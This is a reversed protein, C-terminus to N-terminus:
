RIAAQYKADHLSIMVISELGLDGNQATEAQMFQSLYPAPAESRRWLMDADLERTPPQGILKLNALIAAEFWFSAAAQPLEVLGELRIRL